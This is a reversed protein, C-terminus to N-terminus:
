SLIIRSPCPYRRVGMERAPLQHACSVLRVGEGPFVARRRLFAEDCVLLVGRRLVSVVLRSPVSHCSVGCAFVFVFFSVLLVLCSPEVSVWRAFAFSFSVGRRSPILRSSSRSPYSCCPCAFSVVPCSLVLRYVRSALVFLFVLRLVLRCSVVLLGYNIFFILCGLLFFM